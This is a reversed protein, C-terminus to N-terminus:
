IKRAAEISRKEESPSVKIQSIYGTSTKVTVNNGSAGCLSTRASQLGVLSGTKPDVVCTIDTPFSGSGLTISNLLKTTNGKGFAIAVTERVFENKGSFTKKTENLLTGIPNPSTTTVNVVAAAHRKTVNVLSLVGGDPAEWGRVIPLM